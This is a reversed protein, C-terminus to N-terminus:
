LCTPPTLIPYFKVLLGSPMGEQQGILPQIKGSIWYNHDWVHTLDGKVGTSLPTKGIAIAM